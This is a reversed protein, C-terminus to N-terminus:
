LSIRKFNIEIGFANRRTIKIMGDESLIEDKIFDNMIDMNM